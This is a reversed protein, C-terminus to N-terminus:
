AKAVQEQTHQREALSRRSQSPRKATALATLDAIAARATGLAVAAISLALTAFPPFAYLPAADRPPESVLSASFEERVFLESVTMDHSGTARLGSVHWTDLVEVDARPFLMLRLDGDVIAGGMLWDCNEVNSCFPWRGSVTYGGKTREAKGMPAFVGGVVNAPPGYVEQAVAPDLWAGLMGATASVAVCWGAAADGAALEEITDVLVQPHAELGGAASPVCLRFLGAERMGAVLEPALRREREASAATSAALAALERAAQVPESM